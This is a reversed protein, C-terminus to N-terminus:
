DFNREYYTFLLVVVYVFFYYTLLLALFAFLTSHWFVSNLASLLLIILIIYFYLFLVNGFNSFVKKISNKLSVFANKKSYVIEPIWLISVFSVLAMSIKMTFYWMELVKIENPELDNIISLFERSSLALFKINFESFDLVGVFKSIFYNVVFFIVTYVFLYLATASMVPMFLRGVGKPLSLILKQLSKVKDKDFVFVKKSHALAKKAMYLWSALFGCFMVYLTVAAFILEKLEDISFRAFNFYLSLVPLFIVLPVVLIICENTKKFSIRFLNLM